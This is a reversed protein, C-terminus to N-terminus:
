PTGPRRRRHWLGLLLLMGVWPAPYEPAASCGDTQGPPTKWLPRLRAEKEPDVVISRAQAEAGTVVCRGALCTEQASCELPYGPGCLRAWDVCTAFGTQECAVDAPACTPLFTVWCLEDDSCEADSRCFFDPIDICFGMESDTCRDGEPPCSSAARNCIRGSGCSPSTICVDEAPICRGGTSGECVFGQGCDSDLACEPAPSTAWAPSSICAAAILGCTSMQLIRHRMPIEVHPLGPSVDSALNRPPSAAVRTGRAFGRDTAPGCGVLIASRGGPAVHMDCQVPRGHTLLRSARTALSPCKPAKPPRALMFPQPSAPHRSIPLLASQRRAWSQLAGCPPVLAGASAAAASRGEDARGRWGLVRPQQM